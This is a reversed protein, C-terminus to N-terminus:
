SFEYEMAQRIIVIFIRPNKKLYYQQDSTTNTDASSQM